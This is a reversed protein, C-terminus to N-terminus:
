DAVSVSSPQLVLQCCVSGKPFSVECHRSARVSLVQRPESIQMGALAADDDTVTWAEVKRVQAEKPILESESEVPEVEHE